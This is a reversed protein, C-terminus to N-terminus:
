LSQIGNMRKGAGNDIGVIISEKAIQNQLTDLCEDIGWEGFAATQENFLNQGDNLYIVPYTKSSQTYSKPFYIWIRRTRGLQPMNFATDIIKVQPSATYRKPKDPYDDKWGAISLDLSVDANVEVIRDSIDRGDNTTEVKEFGGRTFKFAYVGAPLDNIVISKRGNGFVKLKYKEDRPNWGNFNGSV